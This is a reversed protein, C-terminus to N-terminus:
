FRLSIRLPMHFKIEFAMQLQLSTSNFSESLIEPDTVPTNNCPSRIICYNVSSLNLNKIIQLIHCTLM